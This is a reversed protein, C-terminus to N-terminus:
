SKNRTAITNKTSCGLRQLLFQHWNINVDKDMDPVGLTSTAAEFGSRHGNISKGGINRAKILCARQLM